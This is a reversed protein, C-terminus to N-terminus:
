FWQRVRDAQWKQEEGRSGDGRASAALAASDLATALPRPSGVVEAAVVAASGAQFVADEVGQRAATVLAEAAARAALGADIRATIRGTDAFGRAAEIAQRLRDDAPFRGSWIPLVREACDAAFNVPQDREYAVGLNEILWLMWDPRELVQWATSIHDCGHDLLWESLAADPNRAEVLELFSM